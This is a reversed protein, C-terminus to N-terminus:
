DHVEAGDGQVPVYGDLLGDLVALVLGAGIGHCLNCKHPEYRDTLM